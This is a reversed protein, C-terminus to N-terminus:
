QTKTSDPMKMYKLKAADDRGCFPQNAYAGSVPGAYEGSVPMSKQASPSMKRPMAVVAPMFIIYVDPHGFIWFLHQWLLPNGGSAPDFFHTGIYRDLELLAAGVTLSPIAFVMAIATVLINWVFLPMRDVSMGPARLKAITVIFNIGGATTAIGLFILGLSWFDMGAEPSYAPGTLPAYAFWGNQPLSSAVFSLNMFIGSLVFVWYGFANLRPFAMDRAGIMLPIFYNGFGSLIPTAFLFIMTTGHMTFLGNYTAPDVLELGPRALQARMVLAEAGGLVFFVFGTAIYRAGIKKHDTTTVWGAEDQAGEWVRELGRRLPLASAKAAVQVTPSCADAVGCPARM